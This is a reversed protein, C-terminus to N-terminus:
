NKRRGRLYSLLGMTQNVFRTAVQIEPNEPSEPFRDM